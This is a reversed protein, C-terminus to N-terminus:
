NFRNIEKYKYSKDFICFTINGNIGTCSFIYEKKNSFYNIKLGYIENRCLKNNCNFYNLSFSGSSIDYIFCNNKGTSFVLCIFSISKDSSIHTKLSIVNDFFWRAM